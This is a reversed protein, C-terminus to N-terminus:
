TIAATDSVDLMTRGEIVRTKLRKASRAQSGTAIPEYHPNHIRSQVTAIFRDIFKGYEELDEKNLMAMQEPTLLWGTGVSGSLARRETPEANELRTDQFITHAAQVFQFDNMDSLDRKESQKLTKTMLNSITALRQAKLARDIEQRELDEYRRVREVWRHKKSWTELTSLKNTPPKQQVNVLNKYQVLLARLSRKCGMRAYDNLAQNAAASEGPLRALLNDIIWDAEILDM